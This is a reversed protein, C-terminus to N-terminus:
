GHRRRPPAQISGLPVNPLTQLSSWQVNSCVFYSLEQGQPKPSSSKKHKEFQHDIPASLGRPQTMKSGLAM